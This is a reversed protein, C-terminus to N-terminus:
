IRSELLLKILEKRPTIKPVHVYTPDQITDVLIMLADNPKIEFINFAHDQIRAVMQYHLNAVVATPVQPARVVQVKLATLLNHDCLAMNYNPFLTVIM